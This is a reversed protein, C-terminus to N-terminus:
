NCMKVVLGEGIIDGSIELFTKSFIAFNHNKQPIIYQVQLCWTGSECEWYKKYLDFFYHFYYPGM